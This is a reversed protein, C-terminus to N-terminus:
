QILIHKRQVVKSRVQRTIDPSTMDQPCSRKTAPSAHGYNPKTESITSSELDSIRLKPPVLGQSPVIGIDVDDEVKEQLRVVLFLLLFLDFQM